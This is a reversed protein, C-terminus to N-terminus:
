CIFHVKQSVEVQEADPAAATGDEVLAPTDSGTAFANSPNVPIEHAAVTLQVQRDTWDALPNMILLGRAQDWEAFELTEAGPGRRRATIWVDAGKLAAELPSWKRNKSAEKRAEGSSHFRALGCDALYRALVDSDPEFEAIDIGYRDRTIQLLSKNEPFLRSTKLTAMNISQDSLAAAWTLVQDAMELHSTFVARYALGGIRNLRETHDLDAFDRNLREALTLTDRKFLEM